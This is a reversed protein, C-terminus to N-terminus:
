LERFGHHGAGSVRLGPGSKPRMKDLVRGSLPMLLRLGIHGRRAWAVEAEVPVGDIQVKVRSGRPFAAPDVALSEVRLGSSMVNIARGECWRAGTQLRVPYNCPKRYDRYKVEDSM